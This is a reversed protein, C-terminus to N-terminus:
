RAQAALAQMRAVEGAFAEVGAADGAGAAAHAAPLAGILRHLEAAAVDPPDAALRAQATRWIQIRQDPGLNRDNRVTNLMATQASRWAGHRQALAGRMGLRADDGVVARMLLAADGIARQRAAALGAADSGPPAPEALVAFADLGRRRVAESPWRGPIARLGALGDRLRALLAAGQQGEAAVAQGASLAALRQAELLMLKMAPDLVAGAAPAATPPPTAPLSGAAFRLSGAEQEEQRERRALHDVVQGAAQDATAVLAAHRGAPTPTVQPAAVCGAALLALGLVAKPFCPPLRM